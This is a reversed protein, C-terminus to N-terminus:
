LPLHCFRRWLTSSRKSSTEDGGGGAPEDQAGGPTALFGGRSVGILGLEGVVLGAGLTGAEEGSAAPGAFDGFGVAGVGPAPLLAWGLGSDDFSM